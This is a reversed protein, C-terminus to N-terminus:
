AAIGIDLLNVSGAWPAISNRAPIAFRSGRDEQSRHDADERHQRNPGAVRGSGSDEEWRDFASM